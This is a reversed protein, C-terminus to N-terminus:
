ERTGFGWSPYHTLQSRGRSARLSSTGFGWSPYHAKQIPGTRKVHGLNWIGMLPLSDLSIGLRKSVELNWIGMLPLSVVQLVDSRSNFVRELDGHPTILSFDCSAHHVLMKTGFGWSPYHTPTLESALLYGINNWIGMLPLSDADVGLGAPLRYQELDGHPTILLRVSGSVLRAAVNWIGMLPLSTYHMRVVAREVSNWIGM